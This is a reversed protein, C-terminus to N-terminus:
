NENFLNIVNKIDNPLPATFTIKKNNLPHNLSIKYAHLAFRNIKKMSDNILLDYKRHFSKSKNKGGGYSEDLFIPHGIHSLHVRLQHTRGTYPYLEIYSFPANYCIKKYKTLSHKGITDTLKFLTRKKTNRTIFGEIRGKDKVDGWVIARYVKEITRNAFQEGLNHHAEDTKAILIVGSTDKDLRHVIGPRKKNLNSLNENYFLLGNLLTGEKNGTGPHVVIGSQKNVVIINKDEFLIDLPIDQKLYSENDNSAIFNIKIHEKSKLIFSPKVVFGDVTIDGSIILKKIKNRSLNSCQNAIFLDLRINSCNNQIEKIM